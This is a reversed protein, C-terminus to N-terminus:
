RLNRAFANAEKMTVFPKIFTQADEAYLPVTEEFDMKYLEEVNPAYPSNILVYSDHKNKYLQCHDFLVSDGKNGVSLRLPKKVDDVIAYEDVFAQRNALVKSSATISEYIKQM